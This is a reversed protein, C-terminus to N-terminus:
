DVWKSDDQRRVSLEISVSKYCYANTSSELVVPKGSFEAGSREM